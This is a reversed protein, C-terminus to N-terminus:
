LVGELLVLVMIIGLCDFGRGSLTSSRKAAFALGFQAGAECFPLQSKEYAHLCAALPPFLLALSPENEDNFGM